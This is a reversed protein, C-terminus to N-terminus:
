FWKTYVLGEPPQIAKEPPVGHFRKAMAAAWVRGRDLLERDDTQMRGHTVIVGIDAGPYRYEGAGYVRLYFAEDPTRVTHWDTEERVFEIEGDARMRWLGSPPAETILEM